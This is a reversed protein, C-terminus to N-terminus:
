YYEIVQYPVYVTLSSNPTGRRAQVSTASALTLQVPVHTTSGQYYGGYVVVAKNTDVSSITATASTGTRSITITGRQVNKVASISGEQLLTQLTSALLATNHEGFIRYITATGDIEDLFLLADPLYPKATSNWIVIQRSNSGTGAVNRESIGTSNSSKTFVGQTGTTPHNLLITSYDKSITLNGTLTGGSTSLAGIDTPTPKHAEDYIQQFNQRWGNSTDGHRLYAAGTPRSLWIQSVYIGQVYSILFGYQGPQETLCGTQNFYAYGTKKEVWNAPTDNATATIPNNGLFTMATDEEAAGINEPTIGLNERANAATTAGTGGNSIPLTGTVGPTINATGDFSATSTSGLNTRITRATELKTAAAATGSFTVRNNDVSFQGTVAINNGAEYDEDTDYNIRLADNQTGITWNGSVTKMALAPWLVNNSSSSHTSNLMARERGNISYSDTANKKIQGTMTGGSTPLAGIDTPTPKNGEHYIEYWTGNPVGDPTLYMRYDKEGDKGYLYIWGIMNIKRVIEVGAFITPLEDEAFENGQTVLMSGNPLSSYVGAITAQGSVFGLQTVSTYTKIKRNADVSSLNDEITKLAEDLTDSNNNFDEINYYEEPLPKILNFNETYNPM